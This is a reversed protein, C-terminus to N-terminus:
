GPGRRPTGSRDCAAAARRSSLARTALINLRVYDISSTPLRAPSRRSSRRRSRRGAAAGPPRRPDVTRLYERLPAGPEIPTPEDTLWAEVRHLRGGRAAADDGGALRVDVARALRRGGRGAGGSRRSTARRRRVARGAARGAAAGRGSAPVAGRPRRGLPLDGDVPDRRRARRGLPLPRGLDAIVYSVRDGFAPSGSAPRRSWRRRPTSRSSGAARCASSWASPSGARAAAPMSCRRTAAAAAPPRPRGHGLPDDPRRHPRLDRRGLRRTRRTPRDCGGSLRGPPTPRGTAEGRQGRGRGARGCASGTRRPAAWSSSAACSRRSGCRISRRRRRPAAVAGAPTRPEAPQAAPGHARLAPDDPRPGPRCRRAGRLVLGVGRRLDAASLLPQGVRSIANNIASALGANSVPVSGMLTTTLPAVVLSIGVRVAARVPPHRRADVAAPHVDVPRRARADVARHQGPRAVALLARRGHAAPGVVLFPRPGIRGALTGVRTSLVTLLIGTPLGILGAATATYGVSARSSCARSTSRDHVARRLDAADLPQDDRVAAGSCGSRCSRTRGAPWSSRSRSSPSRRRHDARGVRGPGAVATRAGSRGSRWGASPSSRSSRASGTSGAPRTRAETEAM